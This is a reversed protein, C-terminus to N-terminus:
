LHNGWLESRRIARRRRHSGETQRLIPSQDAHRTGKWELEFRRQFTAPLAQGALRSGTANECIFIRTVPEVPSTPRARTVANALSPWETQLSTRDSVFALSSAPPNLTAHFGAVPSSPPAATPGSATTFRAPAEIPSPRHVDFRFSTNRALRTSVVRAKISAIPRIFAFGDTNM